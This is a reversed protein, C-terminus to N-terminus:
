LMRPLPCLECCPLYGLFLRGRPLLKASGQFGIVQTGPLAPHWGQAVESGWGWNLLYLPSLLPSGRQHGM